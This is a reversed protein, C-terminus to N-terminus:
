SPPTDLRLIPYWVDIRQVFDIIATGTERFALPSFPQLPLGLIFALLLGLSGGHGVLALRQTDAPNDFLYGGHGPQVGHKALLQQWGPVIRNAMEFASEGAETKWSQEPRRKAAAALLAEYNAPDGGDLLHAPRWEILWPVLQVPLGRPDAIAQATQVTRGLPSAYIADFAVDRLKEALQAAQKAGTPSLYGTVPPVTHRHPDGASNGHRILYIQM